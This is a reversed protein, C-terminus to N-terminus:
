PLCIASGVQTGFMFGWMAGPGMGIGSTAIGGAIFGGLAGLAGFGAVCVAEAAGGGSVEEVQEFTLEQM